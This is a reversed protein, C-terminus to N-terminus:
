HTIATVLVTATGTPPTGATSRTLVVTSATVSSVTYSVSNAGTTGLVIVAGTSNSKNVGDAIEFICNNRSIDSNGWSAMNSLVAQFMILKPPKALTVPLPITWAGTTSVDRTYSGTCIMAEGTHTSLDGSVTSILDALGKVTETTRGSGAIEALAAEIQTATYRGASDEIGIQSAGKGNATSLLEAIMANLFTKINASNEDFKAKFTDDTLTPRDEPNTGLTKIIDTDATYQTLAM